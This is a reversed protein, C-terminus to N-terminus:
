IRHRAYVRGINKKVPQGLADIKKNKDKQQSSHFETEKAYSKKM